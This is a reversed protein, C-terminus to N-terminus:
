ISLPDSHLIYLSSRFSLLLFGLCGSEFIFFPNLYVSRWPLCVFLQYACSFWCWQSVAEYGNPHSSDFCCCYCCCFIVLTPLSTSFNSGQASNTPVYSPVAAKSFLLTPGWFILFPIVMNDLLEVGPSINLLSSLLIEFLYKYVRKWLLM